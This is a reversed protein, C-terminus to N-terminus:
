FHPLYRELEWSHVRQCYEAWEIDKAEIFREYIHEGLAEHMVEDRRLEDLAEGLTTPLLGIQRRRRVNEDLMYLSEEVPAPLPLRRRIGDLGAQLMAAFALYPNCSPDPCRLEIRTRDPEAARGRPVRVLAERNVQGWSVMVPAEYGPVLRKYSNVLPAVIACLARAHALQGAMFHKAVASLGYEYDDRDVFANGGGEHHRLQQHTHMGTGSVGYLPKPLFTAQLDHRQAIAQIAYKGTMLADATRLADAFAFDLEHQGAAVEHHSAEIAVGMALLTDAMERRVAAALDTSLDFYGGRDYPLTVFAGNARQILFFELEPATYYEYGAATVASLARILMARPDGEFPDGNPTLVDCIVRATVGGPDHWPIISFTAPDPRLYMDSEAIRAFSELSSGDFWKGRELTEPFQEIPITVAKAMSVVDTFELSVFRVGAAEAAALIEDASRGQEAM